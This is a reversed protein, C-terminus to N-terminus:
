PGAALVWTDLRPPYPDNPGITCVRYWALRAAILRITASHVSSPPCPTTPTRSVM